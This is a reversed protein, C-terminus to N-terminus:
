KSGYAEPDDDGFDESDEPAPEESPANVEDKSVEIYAKDSKIPGDSEGIKEAFAMKRLVKNIRIKVKDGKQTDPVFIVFGKRKCIGDGKEGVAEVEVNLTQGELVPRFDTDGFDQRM